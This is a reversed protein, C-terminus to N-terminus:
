NVGLTKIVAEKSTKDFIFDFATSLDSPIAAQDTVAPM